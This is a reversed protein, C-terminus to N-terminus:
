RSKLPAAHRLYINGTRECTGFRTQNESLTRTFLKPFKLCLRVLEAIEEVKKSANMHATGM